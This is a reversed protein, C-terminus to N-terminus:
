KIGGNPPIERSKAQGASPPFGGEPTRLPHQVFKKLEPGCHGEPSAAVNVKKGFSGADKHGCIFDMDDLYCSACARCNPKAAGYVKPQLFEKASVLASTVVPLRADVVSDTDVYYVGDDAERAAKSVAKSFPVQGAAPPTELGSGPLGFADFLEGMTTVIAAERYMLEPEIEDFQVVTGQKGQGMAYGFEWSASRGSPLVLVCADCAKLAAIDLSYGKVALPHQLAQRYEAATWNKWNPDISSWAFGAEPSALGEGTWDSIPNRFDYCRHGCRQLALVIAPQLLNRWSSAVYINM